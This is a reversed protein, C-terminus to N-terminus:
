AGGGGSSPEECQRALFLLFDRAVLVRGGENLHGGDGTQCTALCPYRAGTEPEVLMAFTGDRQLCESDGLQFVRDGYRNTLDGGHLARMANAALPVRGILRKVRGKVGPAIGTLPVAAHLVRLSPRAAAIREVMRDYLAEIRELGQLDTLDAYCFKMMAMDLSAADPGTVMAEFAVIKSAVDGNTGIPGHVLGPEAFPDPRDARAVRLGITPRLRLIEEVGDIINGGVSQHGFYIRKSRLAAWTEPAVADLPSLDVDAVALPVEDAAPALAVLGLAAASAVVLACGVLLLRRAPTM